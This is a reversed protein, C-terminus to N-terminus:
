EHQGGRQIAQYIVYCVVLFLLLGLWNAWSQTFLGQTFTDNLTYATEMTWPVFQPIVEMFFSTGKWSIIISGLIILFIGAILNYTYTEVKKGFLSFTFPKQRLWRQLLPIRDSFYALLLFPLVTGLAFVALLSTSKWVNGLSAGVLVIGTLVPMVCPSWAVGFSLGLLFIEKASRNKLVKNGKKFGFSKNFLLFIGMLVMLIGVIWAVFEKYQNFYQGVVGAIAGFITFTILLGLSFVSSMYLAQRKEKFITVFFIPVLAFGCPSLFTIIGALFAALFTISLALQRNYELLKLTSPPLQAFVPLLFVILLGCYLLLKKTGSQM